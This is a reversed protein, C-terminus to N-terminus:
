TERKKGCSRCPRASPMKPAPFTPAATVFNWAGITITAIPQRPTASTQAIPRATEATM